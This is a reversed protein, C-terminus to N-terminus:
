WNATFYLFLPKKREATLDIGSKWAPASPTEPAPREIMRFEDLQSRAPAPDDAPRFGDGARCGASLALAVFAACICFRCCHSM